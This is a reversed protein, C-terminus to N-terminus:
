FESNAWPRRLSIDVDILDFAVLTMFIVESRAEVVITSEIPAIAWGAPATTYQWYM